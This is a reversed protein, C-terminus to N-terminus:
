IWGEIKEWLIRAANIGSLRELEKFGTPSTVNMETLYGGIIDIGVLIQGADSLDDAITECIQKDRASLDCAVARGGVHLNSRIEDKAPLRNIAGVPEGDILLVRKDGNKVQPIFAQAIIPESSQDFFMECLSNFNKDNQRIFFVSSGGNGYLPKIVINGIEKRFQRLEEIDRCILTEPVLSPYQLVSLKEPMNRVSWPKNIFFADSVDLLHTNTVYAMDFPPDQRLFVVHFESLSQRTGAKGDLDSRSDFAFRSVVTSVTEGRLVLDQPSCWEVTHGRAMGEAAIFLSTDTDPNCLVPDDMQILARLKM